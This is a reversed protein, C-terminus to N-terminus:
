RCLLVSCTPMRLRPLHASLCPKPLTIPLQRCPRAACTTRSGPVPVPSACPPAATCHLVPCRLCGVSCVQLDDRPFYGPPYRISHFQDWLVRKERCPLPHAPLCGTLRPCCAVCHRACLPSFVCVTPPMCAWPHGVQTPHPHNRRDCESPCHLAAPEQRQERAAPPLIGRFPVRRQCHRCVPAGGGEGAPVPGPLWVLAM